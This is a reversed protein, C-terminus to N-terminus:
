ITPTLSIEVHSQGNISVPTIVDDYGDMHATLTYDGAVLASFFSQGNSNTTQNVNYAPTVRNLNLEVNTMLENSEDRATILLTHDTHPTLTLELTQSSNPLLNIAGPPNAGAIDYGSTTSDMTLYYTDWEINSLIIQGTADTSHTQSYKYIPDGTSNTGIIKSGRLHFAVSAIPVGGSDLSRVTFSSLRDITFSLETGTGLIISAPPPTPNPNTGDIPYTTSTSYGSKSVSIDYTEQAVPMGPLVYLGGTSMTATLNVPPAVNDNFIHVSASPVPNGNADFVTLKLTGGSDNNEIGKPSADTVLVVPNHNLMEPWAVEVRIRKYDANFLDNPTGGLTGDFPDDVYMVEITITYQIRNVTKVETRLLTGSPVGGSTGIDNYALNRVMEVRENGLATADLRARSDLSVKTSIVVLSYLGTMAIAFIFLAVMVEILTM